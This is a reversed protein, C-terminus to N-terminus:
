AGLRIADRDGHNGTEGLLVPWQRLGVSRRSSSVSEVSSFPILALRCAMLGTHVLLFGPAGGACPLVAAVSGIRGDHTEVQYGEARALDDAKSM